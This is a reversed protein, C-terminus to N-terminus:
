GAQVAVWRLPDILREGDATPLQWLDRGGRQVRRSLEVRADRLALRAVVRRVDLHVVLVTDDLAGAIWPWAPDLFWRTPM